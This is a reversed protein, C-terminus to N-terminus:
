QHFVRNQTINKFRIKVIIKRISKYNGLFMVKWQVMKDWQLMFLPQISCLNSNNCQFMEKYHLYFVMNLHQARNFSLTQFTIRIKMYWQIILTKIIITFIERMIPLLLERAQIRPQRLYAIQQLLSWEEAQLSGGKTIQFPLTPVRLRLWLKSSLIM